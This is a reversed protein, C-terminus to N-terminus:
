QRPPLRDQLLKGLARTIATLDQLKVEFQFLQEQVKSNNMSSLEIVLAFAFLAISVLAYYSATSYVQTIQVASATRLAYGQPELIAQVMYYTGAVFGLASILRSILKM